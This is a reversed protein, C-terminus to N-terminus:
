KLIRNHGRWLWFSKFVEMNDITICVGKDAISTVPPLDLYGWLIDKTAPLGTGDLRGPICDIRYFLIQL